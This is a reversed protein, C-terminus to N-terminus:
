GLRLLRPKRRWQRDYPAIDPDDVVAQLAELKQPITINNINM